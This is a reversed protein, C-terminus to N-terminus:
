GLLRYVVKSCQQNDPCGRCASKSPAAKSVQKVKGMRLLQALMLELRAAPLALQCGLQEAALEGNLALADCIAMLSSM